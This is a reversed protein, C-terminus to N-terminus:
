IEAAGFLLPETWFLVPMRLRKYGLGQLRERHLERDLENPFAELELAESGAVPYEM